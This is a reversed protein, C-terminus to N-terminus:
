ELAQTLAKAAEDLLGNQWLFHGLEEQASALQYRYAPLAKQLGPTRAFNDALKRQSELAQASSKVAERMRGTQSLLSAQQLYSQALLQWNDPVLPQVRILKEALRVAKDAFALGEATRDRKNLFAALNRYVIVLSQWYDPENPFDKALGEALDI